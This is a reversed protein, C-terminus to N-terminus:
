WINNPKKYVFHEPHKIDALPNIRKETEIELIDFSPNILLKGDPSSYGGFKLRKLLNGNLEVIGGAIIVKDGESGWDMLYMSECVRRRERGDPKMVWIWFNCVFAILDGKPSWIPSELPEDKKGEFIKHENSGDADMIWLSYYDELPGKFFGDKGREGKVIHIRYVVRDGDPSWSPHTGDSSICKEDSGDINITWIGSDGINYVLRKTAISYDLYSDSLSTIEFGRRYIRKYVRRAKNTFLETIEKKETGDYNMSCLFYKVDHVFYTGGTIMDPKETVVAFTVKKIFYIKNDEGWCPAHYSISDSKWSKGFPFGGMAYASASVFILWVGLGGLILKKSM